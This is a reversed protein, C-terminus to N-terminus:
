SYLILLCVTAGSIKFVIWQSNLAAWEHGWVWFVMGTGESDNVQTDNVGTKQINRIFHKGHVM